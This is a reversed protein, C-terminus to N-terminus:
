AVTPTAKAGLLLRRALPYIAAATVLGAAASETRVYPMSQEVARDVALAAAGGVAVAVADRIRM